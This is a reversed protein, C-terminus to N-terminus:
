KQHCIRAANRSDYIDAQDFQPCGDIVCNIVSRIVCWPLQYKIQSLLYKGLIESIKDFNQFSQICVNKGAM